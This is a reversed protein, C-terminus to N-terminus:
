AANALAAAALGFHGAKIHKEAKRAYMQSALMTGLGWLVLAAIAFIGTCVGYRLSKPATTPEDPKM